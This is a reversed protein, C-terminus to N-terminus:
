AKEITKEPMEFDDLFKEQKVAYITYAYIGLAVLGLSIATRNNSRRYGQVKKARQFNQEEMRKMYVVDTSKLKEGDKILDVKPMTENQTVRNDPGM